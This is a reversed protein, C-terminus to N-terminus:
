IIQIQSPATVEIEAAGKYDKILGTVAITQGSYHSEPPYPFAPRNQIWIVVTFRNNDPYPKGVNLFTPQGKSSTAYKTSVVPGIVTTKEGIHYRAQDWPIGQPQPPPTPEQSISENETSPAQTVDTSITDTTGCSTATVLLVVALMIIVAKLTKRM